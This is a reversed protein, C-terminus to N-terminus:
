DELLSELAEVIEERVKVPTVQDFTFSWGVVGGLVRPRSKVAINISIIRTKKAGNRRDDELADDLLEHQFTITDANEFSPNTNQADAVIAMVMRKRKERIKRMQLMASAATRATVVQSRSMREIDRWEEATTEEGEHTFRTQVAFGAAELQPIFEKMAPEIVEACLRAFDIQSQNIENEENESQRRASQIQEARKKLVGDLRAKVDVNMSEETTQPSKPEASGGVPRHAQVYALAQQYSEGSEEMRQRALRQEKTKPM